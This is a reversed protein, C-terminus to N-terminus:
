ATDEQEDEREAELQRRVDALSVTMTLGAKYLDARVASAERRPAVTVPVNFLPRLATLLSPPLVTELYELSTGRMWADTSVFARAAIRMPEREFALALLNFVFECDRRSNGGARLQREAAAIAPAPPVALEPHDESLKLLAQASRARVELSDAALAAVLGDRAIPSDCYELVAPLRRKVAEPTDTDLLASAMEGAARPGFSKLAAVTPRLIHSNALLPVLAGILSPDRPLSALAARIRISNGSRLADYAASAPDPASETIAQQLVSADLGAFSRVMTFDSLSQQAVEELNAGHRRLGGELETVYGSRLRRAVAFEVAAALVIALNVAILARPAGLRTLLLALGAGAAKGASDGTVDILSKASRKASSPLPTYLLEYGTRVVSNRLTMDLGRPLIGRWPAPVVMGLLGATGVVVSHSAVSGGLGLRALAFRGFVAQVLFASAGTAAYFIGFFRVLSEGKGLWSVAEAKLFYDALAAVVGSLVTVLALDRLLGPRRFESWPKPAEPAVQETRHSAGATRAIALAGGAVLIGLVALVLLLAAPSLLAAVREAGLGGLLGGLTAAGATKAILAKAAHPDFRENMLSWFTSIAIAGLVSSHVYLLVSAVHPWRLLAWEGVFLISGIALLIPAMRAPGYRTLFRGSLQAAPIAVLSAGAVFYPFLTVHYSTLLLGDRSANSAVQQAILIMATVPALIDLRLTSM